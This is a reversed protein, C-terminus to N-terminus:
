DSRTGLLYCMLLAPFHPGTQVHLLDLAVGALPLHRRPPLRMQAAPPAEGLDVAATLTAHPLNPLRLIGIGRAEILGALNPPPSAILQGDVARIDCRDDAVLVAGLAILQLALTSKGAGSPGLILLGKGQAAICTAHINQAAPLDTDAM